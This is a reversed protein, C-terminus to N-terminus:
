TDLAIDDWGENSIIWELARRRERVVLPPVKGPAPIGRLEADRIAWHLCYVLDLAAVIEEAGRVRALDKFYTSPTGTNLDPFLAIFDDSCSDSFDLKNHHNTVWTTAWLAEVQWQFFSARQDFPDDLYRFESHSLGDYLGEKKLWKKAKERSFGYSCAVCAYLCLTRKVIENKSRLNAIPDLLPLNSNIPYGLNEAAKESSQRIERLNM